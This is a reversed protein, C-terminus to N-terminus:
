ENQMAERHTADSELPRRASIRHGLNFAHLGPLGLDVAIRQRLDHAVELCVLLATVPLRTTTTASRSRKAVPSLPAAPTSGM